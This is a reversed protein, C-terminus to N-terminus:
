LVLVSIFAQAGNVDLLQDRHCLWVATEITSTSGNDSQIDLTAHRSTGQATDRTFGEGVGRMSNLAKSTASLRLVTM